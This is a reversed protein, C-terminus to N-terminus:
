DKLRLYVTIETGPYQVNEPHLPSNIEITRGVQEQFYEIISKVRRLGYGTSSIGSKIANSARKGKLVQLQETKPIGIGEDRVSFTLYNVSDIVQEALKTNVISGERTYKVGNQMLNSSLTYLNYDDLRAIQSFLGGPHKSLFDTGEVCISVGKSKAYDTSYDLALKFVDEPKMKNQELGKELFFNYRKITKLIGETMMGFYVDWAQESISTLESEYSKTNFQGIFNSIEHRREHDFRRKEYEPIVPVLEMSKDNQLTRYAETCSYAVKLKGGVDSQKIFEESAKAFLKEAERELELGIELARSKFAIPKSARVFTDAKQNFAPRSQPNTLLKKDNYNQIPTITLM